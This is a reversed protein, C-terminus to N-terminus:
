LRQRGKPFRGNGAGEPLAPALATRRLTQWGIRGSTTPVPTKGAVATWDDGQGPWWCAAQSARPGGRITNRLARM